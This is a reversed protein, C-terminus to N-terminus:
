FYNGITHQESKQGIDWDTADHAKCSRLRRKAVGTMLEENVRIATM